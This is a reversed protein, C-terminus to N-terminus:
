HRISLIVIKLFFFDFSVFPNTCNLERVYDPPTGPREPALAAQIM